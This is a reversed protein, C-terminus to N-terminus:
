NQQGHLPTFILLLHSITIQEGEETSNHNHDTANLHARDTSADHCDDDTLPCLRVLCGVAKSDLKEDRAEGTGDVKEDHGAKIVSAPPITANMSSPRRAKCDELFALLVALPTGSGGSGGGGFLTSLCDSLPTGKLWPQLAASVGPNGATSTNATGGGGNNNNADGGACLQRPTDGNLPQPDGLGGADGCLKRFADNAFCVRLPSTASLVLRAESPTPRIASSYLNPVVKLGSGQSQTATENTQTRQPPGRHSSPHEPSSAHQIQRWFSVADFSFELLSIKNTTPSFEARVTGVKIVECRKQHAAVLNSSKMQFACMVGRSSFHMGDGFVVDPKDPPRDELDKSAGGVSAGSSSRSLTSVSLAPPLASDKRREDVPKNKKNAVTAAVGKKRKKGELQQKREDSWVEGGGFGDRGQKEEEEQGEDEDCDGHGNDGGGDSSGSSDGPSGALAYSITVPPTSDVTGLSNLGGDRFASPPLGSCLSSSPPPPPPPPRPPSPQDHRAIQAVSSSSVTPPLVLSSSPPPLSPPPPVLSPLSSSPRHVGKHAIAALAVALSQADSILSAIGVSRSEVAVKSKITHSRYPAFPHVLEVSDEVHTAWAEARRECQARLNLVEQLRHQWLSRLNRHHHHSSSSLQSSALPPSTAHRQRQKRRRLPLLGDGSAEDDDDHVNDEEDDDEDDDEEPVSCSRSRSRARSLCRDEEEDEEEVDDEADQDQGAHNSPKEGSVGLRLCEQQVRRDEQQQLRRDRGSVGVSRNDVSSVKTVSSSSVGWPTPYLEACLGLTSASQGERTQETSAGGEKSKAGEGGL